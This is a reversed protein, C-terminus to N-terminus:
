FGALKKGLETLAPPDIQTIEPLARGWTRPTKGFLKPRHPWHNTTRLEQFAKQKKRIMAPTSWNKPTMCIYVVNRFNSTRRGKQAEVGCHITRSDWFVMSGAPCKIYKLECGAKLYTQIELDNLKYWDSRDTVNFAQAFAGHFRHSGELVALTADGEDVDYATVWSQICELGNRLYSQDTHLWLGKFWGRGTTEPPLQFSSGDFSTLLDETEWLKAFINVIKPNQRLNWVYQAQGIGFHQMLMSHLPLLDYMSKWSNQVNRNFPTEFKQTIHELFDCVGSQQQVIEETNLVNPVIAVGYKDLTSKLNESTTVYKDQEWQM